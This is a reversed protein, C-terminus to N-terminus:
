EEWGLCRRIGVWPQIYTLFPLGDVSCTPKRTVGDVAPGYEILHQLIREQHHMNWPYLSKIKGLLLLTAATLAYGGWNSTGSLICWAAPIRCPVWGAHTGPLRRALERWPIAGMGIENGGDGIGIRVCSASVGDAEFLRHLPATWADINEGRMNHNHNFKEPPVTELFRALDETVTERPSLAQLSEPTHSPGVRELAILHSLKQGIEGACFERCWVEGGELPCVLIHSRPFAYADATAAIAGWCPQDTIVWTKIGANWLGTALMLSGLPGDTEAAPPNAGPINFGTVIAVAKGHGALHRAAHTLHGLCLPGYQDESSLLGRRAPDRRILAEFQALEASSM